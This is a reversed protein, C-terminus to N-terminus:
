TDNGSITGFLLEPSRTMDHRCGGVFLLLSRFYYQILRRESFSNFMLIPNLELVACERAYKKDQVKLLKGWRRCTSRTTVIEINKEEKYTNNRFPFAFACFLSNHPM